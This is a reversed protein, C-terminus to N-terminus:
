GFFFVVFIGSVVYRVVNRFDGFASKIEDADPRGLFYWIMYGGAGLFALSLLINIVRCLSCGEKGM